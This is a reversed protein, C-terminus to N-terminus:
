PLRWGPGVALADGLPVRLEATEQQLVLEGEEGLDRFSGRVTEGRTEVSVTAGPRPGRARWGARVPAFGDEQWRHLWSLFHRSFSELLRVPTIEECGEEALSTVEPRHGPEIGLPAAVAAELGLILRAPMAPDPGIPDLVVGGVLGGNTELRDPWANTVAVTPPALAGVADGLAVVAVLAVPASQRWDGDPDLLLALSLRGGADSWILTGEPASGAQRRLAMGPPGSAVSRSARFITPLSPEQRDSM